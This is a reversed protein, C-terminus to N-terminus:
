KEVSLNRLCNKSVKGTESTMDLFHPNSLVSFRRQTLDPKIKVALKEGREVRGAFGYCGPLCHKCVRYSTPFQRLKILSM